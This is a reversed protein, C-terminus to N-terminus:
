QSEAMDVQMRGDVYRIADLPVYRGDVKVMCGTLVGWRSDLGMASSKSYCTAKDLMAVLAIIAAFAAAFFGLIVINEDKYGRQNRM